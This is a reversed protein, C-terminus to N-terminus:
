GLQGADSQTRELQRTVGPLFGNNLYPVYEGYVGRVRFVVVAESNLVPWGGLELKMIHRRIQM